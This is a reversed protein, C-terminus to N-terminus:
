GTNEGDEVKRITYSGDGNDIWRITDGCHWGLLGLAALDFEIALEGDEDEVLTTTYIKSQTM